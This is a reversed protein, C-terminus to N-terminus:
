KQAARLEALQGPKYEKASIEDKRVGNKFNYVRNILKQSRISKPDPMKGAMSNEQTLPRTLVLM